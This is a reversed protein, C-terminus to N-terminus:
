RPQHLVSVTFTVDPMSGPHVDESVGLTVTYDRTLRFSVGITLAAAVDGLPSVRSDYVPTRVLAQVGLTTNATLDYGVGASLQGVVSNGPPRLDHTGLWTASVRYFGSLSEVSALGTQDAAFGLSLDWGGSGLLDGSDGTPLKLSLRLASSASASNALQWGGLLRVDGLGNVNRNLLFENGDAEYRFLLRDAPREDRIGDPLGFIGHWRDIFSDLNGSEHMVWPVEIGLEFNGGFGHRWTIGLRNTEGDLLISEGSDDDRVSHSSTALFIDWRNEGHGPLKSGERSDPFGFLGSMPGNDRDVLADASALDFASLCILAILTARRKVGAYPRTLTQRFQL